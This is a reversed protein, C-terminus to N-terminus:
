WIGRDMTDVLYIESLPLRSQDPFTPLSTQSFAFSTQISHKLNSHRELAIEGCQCKRALVPHGQCSGCLRTQSLFARPLPFSLRNQCESSREADRRKTKFRSEKGPDSITRAHRPCAQSQWQFADPPRLESGIQCSAVDSLSCSQM